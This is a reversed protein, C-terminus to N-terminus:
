WPCPFFSARSCWSCPCRSTATCSRCTSNSNLVSCKPCFWQAQIAAQDISEDEDDSDKSKKKGKGNEEMWKALGPPIGKKAMKTSNHYMADDEMDKSMAEADEEDGAYM